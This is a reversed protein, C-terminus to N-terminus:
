ETECNYLARLKQGEDYSTHSVAALGIMIGLPGVGAGLITTGVATAVELAGYAATVREAVCSRAANAADHTKVLREASNAEGEIYVPPIAVARPSSARAPAAGAEGDIPAPPISVSVGSSSGGVPNPM